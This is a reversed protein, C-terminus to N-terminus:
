EGCIMLCIFVWQASRYQVKGQITIALGAQLWAFGRCKGKVSDRRSKEVSQVCLSATRKERKAAKSEELIHKYKAEARLHNCTM